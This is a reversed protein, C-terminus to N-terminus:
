RPLGTDIRGSRADAEYLRIFDGVTVPYTVDQRAFPDFGLAHELRAVMTAMVLSDFGLDELALSDSIPPLSTNRDAAMQRVHSLITLRISM